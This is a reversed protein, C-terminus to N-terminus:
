RESTKIREIEKKAKRLLFGFFIYIAVWSGSMFPIVFRDGSHLKRTGETPSNPNYSIPIIDGVSMGEPRRICVDDFFEDDAHFSVHVCEVAGSEKRNIYVVEGETQGTLVAMSSVMWLVPILTIALGICSLVVNRKYLSEAAQKSPANKKRPDEIEGHWYKQVEQMIEDSVYLLIFKETNKKGSLLPYLDASEANFYISPADYGNQVPFFGIGVVQIDQWPILYDKRLFAYGVGREDITVREKFFKIIQWASLTTMGLGIAGFIAGVIFGDRAVEAIVFVFFVFIAIGAIGVMIFSATHSLTLTRFKRM